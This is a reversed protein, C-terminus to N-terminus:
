FIQKIESCIYTKKNIIYEQSIYKKQLYTFIVLLLLLISYITYLYENNMDLYM